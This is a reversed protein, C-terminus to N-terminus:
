LGGRSGWLVLCKYRLPRVVRSALQAQKLWADVKGNLVNREGGSRM